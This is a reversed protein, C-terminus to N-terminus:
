LPGCAPTAAARDRKEPGSEPDAASRSAIAKAPSSTPRTRPTTSRASAATAPSPVAISRAKRENAQRMTADMSGLTAAYIEIQGNQNCGVEPQARMDVNPMCLRLRQTGLGPVHIDSHRPSQTPTQFRVLSSEKVPAVVTGELCERNPDDRLRSANTKKMFPADPRARIGSITEVNSGPARGDNAHSL